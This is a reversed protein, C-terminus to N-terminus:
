KYKIILQIMQEKTKAKSRGEIKNNTIIQKLDKNTKLKLRQLRSIWREPENYHILKGYRNYEYPCYTDQIFDRQKFDCKYLDRWFGKLVVEKCQYVSKYLIYSRPDDADDELFHIAKAKQKLAETLPNTLYLFILNLVDDPLHTIDKLEM